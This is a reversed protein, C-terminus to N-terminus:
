AVQMTRSCAIAAPGGAMLDDIRQADSMQMAGLVVLFNIHAPTIETITADEGVFYMTGNVKTLAGNTEDLIAYFATSPKRTTTTQTMTAAAM